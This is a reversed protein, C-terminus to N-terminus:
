KWSHRMKIYWNEINAFRDSPIIIRETSINKIKSSPAYTYKPSLLFIAPLDKMLIDQFDRYKKARTELDAATKASELLADVEKNSYGSLNLGGIKSQSSHWFAYMDPQNGFVQDVIAVDFEKKRLIQNQFDAASYYKINVIAGLAMWNAALLDATRRFDEKDLVALTFELSLQKDVTKGDEKVKITKTRVTEPPTLVWNDDTLIKTATELNLLYQPLGPNYGLFGSPIPGNAIVGDGGLAKTVIEQKDTAYALAQRVSLETVPSSGQLNFFAVRYEPSDFVYPKLRPDLLIEKADNPVVSLGEVQKNKLATLAENFTDYFKFTIQDIKAATPKHKKNRVLTYELIVGRQKDQTIKDLKYYGTGVPKKLNYEAHPFAEPPIDQWLHAPLIGLTLSNLFNAIPVELIFRVSFDGTQEVTVGNFEAALPSKILPNIVTQYTYVVDNARFPEGDHWTVDDRLNFTFTKHDPSEEYSLALDPVVNQNADRRMLGSYILRSLDSDTDRLPALLPNVFQPRGVLAESYEGGEAPVLDMKAGFFSYVIFGLSAVLAVTAVVLTIADGKTLYRQFYKLQSVKPFFRGRAKQVLALDYNIRIDSPKLNQNKRGFM